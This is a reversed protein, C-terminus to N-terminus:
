KHLFLGGDGWAWDGAGAGIQFHLKAIGLDNFTEGNDSAPDIHAAATGDAANYTFTIPQRNMGSPAKMAAEVGARFWDPAAAREEDTMGATFQEYSKTPRHTRQREVLDAYSTSTYTLHHEPHGIVIGLYLEESKTIRCHKAAEERDWSGGVWLTGLGRLTAALVAREGYFGARERAEPDDKPGVVAILNAANTLHGSENAAAFVAPQNLILQMNLGGLMNVADLTMSLQRATDEDIPDKDYARVSTRINIADILQTHEAM